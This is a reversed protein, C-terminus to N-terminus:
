SKLTPRKRATTEAAARVATLTQHFPNHANDQLNLPLDLAAFLEHELVWPESVTIWSVM